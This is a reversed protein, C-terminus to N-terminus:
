GREHTGLLVRQAVIQQDLRARKEPPVRSSARATVGLLVRQTREQASEPAAVIHSQASPQAVIGALLARQQRLVGDVSGTAAAAGVYLALSSALVKLTRSTM